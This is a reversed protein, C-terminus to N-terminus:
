LTSLAFDSYNMNWLCPKNKTISFLYIIFLTSFTIMFPLFKRICSKFQGFSSFSYILLCIVSLLFENSLTSINICLLVTIRLKCSTFSVDSTRELVTATAESLLWVHRLWKTANRKSIVDLAQHTYENLLFYSTHLTVRFWNRHLRISLVTFYADIKTHLFTTQEIAHM